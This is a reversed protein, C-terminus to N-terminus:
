YSVEKLVTSMEDLKDSCMDAFNMTEFRISIMYFQYQFFFPLTSSVLCVKIFRGLAYIQGRIIERQQRKKTESRRLKQMDTLILDHNAEYSDLM